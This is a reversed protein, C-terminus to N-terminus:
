KIKKKLKNKIIRDGSVFYKGLKYNEKASFPFYHLDKKVNWVKRERVGTTKVKKKSINTILKQWNSKM